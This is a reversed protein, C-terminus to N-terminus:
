CNKKWMNDISTYNTTCKLLAMKTMIYLLCMAGVLCKTYYRCMQTDPQVM